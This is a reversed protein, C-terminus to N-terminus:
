EKGFVTIPRKQANQAHLLLGAVARDGFHKGAGQCPASCSAHGTQM